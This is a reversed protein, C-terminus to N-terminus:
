VINTTQSHNYPYNIRSNIAGSYQHNTISFHATPVAPYKAQRQHVAAVTQNQIQQLIYGKATKRRTNSKNPPEVGERSYFRYLPLFTFELLNYSEGAGKSISKTLSVHSHTFYFLVQLLM